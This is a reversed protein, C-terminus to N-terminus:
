FSSVSPLTLDPNEFEMSSRASPSKLPPAPVRSCMLPNAPQKAVGLIAPKPTHADSVHIKPSFSMFAGHKNFEVASCTFPDEASIACSMPTSPISVIELRPFRDEVPQPWWKNVM